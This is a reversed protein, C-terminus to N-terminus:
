YVVLFIFIYYIILSLIIYNVGVLDSCFFLLENRTLCIREEDTNLYRCLCLRRCVRWDVYEEGFVEKLCTEM